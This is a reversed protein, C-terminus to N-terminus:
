DDQIAEAITSKELRKRTQIRNVATEKKKRHLVFTHGRVEILNSETQQAIKNAIVKANEEHLATKLVRVKITETRELQEDIEDLIEQATGKKGIWITPKEGSLERKIRRKIKPTIM